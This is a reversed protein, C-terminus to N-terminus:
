GQNWSLEFLPSYGLLYSPLLLSLSFHKHERSVEQPNSKIQHSRQVLLLVREVYSQRWIEHDGERQRKLAQPDPSTIVAKKTELDLAGNGM